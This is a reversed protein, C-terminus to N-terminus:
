SVLFRRFSEAVLGPPGAIPRTGHSHQDRSSQGSINPLRTPRRRESTISSLSRGRRSRADAEGHDGGRDHRGRGLGVAQACIQPKGAGREDGRDGGRPPDASEPCCRVSGTSGPTGRAGCRAVGPARTRSCVEGGGGFRAALQAGGAAGFAVLIAVLPIMKTPSMTILVGQTLAAAPMSIVSAAISQGTAVRMAVAITQAMLAPSVAPTWGPIAGTAVFVPTPAVGRRILRSRLLERAKAMRSRVTGVSM